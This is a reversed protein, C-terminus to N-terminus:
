VPLLIAPLSFAMTPKWKVIRALLLTLPNAPTSNSSNDINIQQEFQWIASLGDGLDSSGKFGFKSVNSSVVRKNVGTVATAGNSTTTGNGTNIIDYSVDAKGYFTFNGNDAVAQVPLAFAATLAVVILKKQMM